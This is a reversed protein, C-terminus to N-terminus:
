ISAYLTCTVNKWYTNRSVPKPVKVLCSDMRCYSVPAVVMGQADITRAADYRRAADTGVALVRGDRVVLDRVSAAGESGDHLLGGVIALDAPERATTCAVLTPSLLVLLLACRPFM